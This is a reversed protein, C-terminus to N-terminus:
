RIHFDQQGLTGALYWQVVDCSLKLAHTRFASQASLPWRDFLHTQLAAPAALAAEFQAPDIQIRGAFVEVTRIHAGPQLQGSLFDRWRYLYDDQEFPLWRAPQVGAIAAGTLGSLTSLGQRDLHVRLVDHWFFRMARSQWGESHVFVPMLVHVVWLQDLLLHALYGAMFAAHDHTLRGAQALGPYQAFMQVWAPASDPLPVEFFHTAERLQGSLSQVDPATNGFLFAGLEDHLWHHATADLTPSALVDNALALHYFPTPM